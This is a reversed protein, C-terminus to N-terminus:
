FYAVVDGDSFEMVKTRFEFDNRRQKQSSEFSLDTREVHIDNIKRVLKYKM